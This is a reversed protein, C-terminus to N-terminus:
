LRGSRAYAERVQYAWESKAARISTFAFDPDTRPVFGTNAQVVYRRKGESDYAWWLTSQNRVEKVTWTAM